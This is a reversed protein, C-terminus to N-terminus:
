SGERNPREREPRQASCLRGTEWFAIADGHQASVRQRETTRSRGKSALRVSICLAM